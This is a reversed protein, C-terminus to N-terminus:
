MPEDVNVEDSLVDRLRGTARSLHVRVTAPACRLVKAIDAVSLGAFHRLVFATKQQRPLDSLIKGVDQRFAADAALTVPDLGGWRDAAFAHMVRQVVPQRRRWCQWDRCQNICVRYLWSRVQAPPQRGSAQRYLKILVEQTVEEADERSRLLGVALAFVRDLHVEVMEDFARADGARFRAVLREDSCPDPEHGATPHRM